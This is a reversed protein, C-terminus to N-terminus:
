RKGRYGVAQLVQAPIQELPVVRRLIGMEACARSMGYVTCSAEDQGVTVGGANRIAEMGLAGDAGMGTMIVGLALGRYVIAVSNMMVDVSPIHPTDSPTNALRIEVQSPSKRNVTMQNGAPAIYVNGPELLEEAVAERVSVKCLNNLRKAFPGTFGVPMHQVILVPVPLDEPFMPLIQQLAKPGGTSTGLAVVSPTVQFSHVCVQPISTPSIRRARPRKSEAAARIKSVLDERMKVIDLSAYSSQKPLCDFAGCDLAELTTDAGERTLSSVMIVPRPSDKMILKLTELGNMRPM